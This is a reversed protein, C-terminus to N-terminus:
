RKFCDRGNALIETEADFIVDSAPKSLTEPNRQIFALVEKSQRTDVLRTGERVMSSPSQVIRPPCNRRSLFRDGNLQDLAAIYGGCYGWGYAECRSVIDKGTPAGRKWKEALSPADSLAAASLAVSIGLVVVCGPLPTGPM